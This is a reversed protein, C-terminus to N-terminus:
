GSRTRIDSKRFDTYTARIDSDQTEESRQEVLIIVKDYDTQSLNSSTILFNADCESTDIQHASDLAIM